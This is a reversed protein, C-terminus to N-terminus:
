QIDKKDSKSEEKIVEFSPVDLNKTNSRPTNGPQGPLEKKTAKDVKKNLEPSPSNIEVQFIRM